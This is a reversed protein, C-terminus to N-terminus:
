KFLLGGTKQEIVAQRRAAGTKLFYVAIIGPVAICLGFQTTVMAESIGGALAKPNALGFRGVSEFTRIMGTVTGFLGLFPAMAALVKITAIKQGTKQGTQGQLFFLLGRDHRIRDTKLRFFVKKIQEIEHDPGKQWFPLHFFIKFWMLLCCLILPYMTIGGTKMYHEFMTVVSEM